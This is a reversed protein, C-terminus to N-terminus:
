FRYKTLIYNKLKAINFSSISTLLKLNSIDRLELSHRLAINNVSDEKMPLFIINKKSGTGM